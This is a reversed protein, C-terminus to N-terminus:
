NVMQKLSLNINDDTRFVKNRILIQALTGLKTASIQHGTFYEEPIWLNGYRTMQKWFNRPLLQRSIM